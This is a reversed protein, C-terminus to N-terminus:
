LGTDTLLGHDHFLWKRQFVMVMVGIMTRQLLRPSFLKEWSRLEGVLGIKSMSGEDLQHILTAEVKM